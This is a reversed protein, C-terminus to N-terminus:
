RLFDLVAMWSAQAAEPNYGLRGFEAREPLNRMDFGHRANPYLVTRLGNPPAGNIVPDCLVPLAVNDMAGMLMLVSVSTSSWPMARRCDPYYVVAKAFLPPSEPPMAKLAALVGGGGYSWGIAFIKGSVVGPQGQVWRAAEEIDAAVEAHTVNRGGACDTLRRHSLYDVFVVFYGAAQLQGGREEYHNTGNRVVFGSCGPVLLVAPSPGAGSPALGRFPEAAFTISACLPIACFSLLRTTTRLCQSLM